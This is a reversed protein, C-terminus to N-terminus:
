FFKGDNAFFVCLERVVEVAVHAVAKIEGIREEDLSDDDCPPIHVVAKNNSASLSHVVVSLDLIPSNWPHGFGRGM